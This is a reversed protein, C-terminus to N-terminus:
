EEILEGCTTHSKNHGGMYHKPFDSSYGDLTHGLREQDDEQSIEIVVSQDYFLMLDSLAGM